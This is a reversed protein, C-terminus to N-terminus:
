SHSVTCVKKKVDDSGYKEELDDTGCIKRELKSVPKKKEHVTSLLPPPPRHAVAVQCFCFFIQCFLPMLKGVIMCSRKERANRLKRAFICLLVVQVSSGRARSFLVTHRYTKKEANISAFISNCCVFEAFISSCLIRFPLSQRRGPRIRFSDGMGGGWLKVPIAGTECM